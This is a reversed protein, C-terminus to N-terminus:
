VIFVVSFGCFNLFLNQVNGQVRSDQTADEREHKKLSLVSHGLGRDNLFPIRESRSPSGGRLGLNGNTRHLRADSWAALGWIIAVSLVKAMKHRACSVCVEMSRLNLIDKALQGRRSRLQTFPLQVRDLALHLGSSPSRHGSMIHFTSLFRMIRNQRYTKFSSNHSASFKASHSLLRIYNADSALSFLRSVKRRYAHQICFPLATLNLTHCQAKVKRNSLCTNTRTRDCSRVSFVFCCVWVACHLAPLRSCWSCSWCVVVGYADLDVWDPTRPMTSCRVM